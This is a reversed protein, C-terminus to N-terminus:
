VSAAERTEIFRRLADVSVLRRSGIRISVLEGSNMLDYVADRGIALAEAAQDVTLLLRLIPELPREAVPLQEIM